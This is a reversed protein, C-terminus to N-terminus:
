DPYFDIQDRRKQRRVVPKKPTAAQHSREFEQLHHPLIIFRPKGCRTTATNIAGLRGSQIWARVKDPSVRLLQALERPTFGRAAPTSLIEPTDAPM